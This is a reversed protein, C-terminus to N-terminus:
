STREYRGRLDNWRIRFLDWFMAPADPVFRVKSGAAHRWIVPVEKMSLGWKRAIYLIEVDFGFDEISQQGFLSRCRSMKFLKFGCQTDQYPLGTFLRVLRNFIKGSTERIWPQHIEVQSGELDRSGFAIDCSGGIVERELKRMEEIPSSLDADTMLTYSGQAELMGRRVSYGKGRNRDNRYVWVQSKPDRKTTFDRAIEFTRDDSGDDVVLLEFSLGRSRLYLVLSELTSGIHQEENYAPIIISLFVDTM